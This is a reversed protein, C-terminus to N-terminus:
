DIGQFVFTAYKYGEQDYLRTFDRLRVVFDNYEKRDYAWGVEALAALRPLVKFQVNQMDPIYEAWINAQVGLINRQEEPRLQDYPDLRYSQRLPLYRLNCLPENRRPDATQSYDLYCNWKPAMIVKNGKRAAEMGYKQDRWVMINATKSIGGQLIEDWGIIERGQAHMWREIRHIFYSQLENEDKLGETRIREQCRPCTKWREKPCEDGGIHIYRSPFLAIVESLVNEFFEFTTDRGACYVDTSVGWRGWVEYPGGTCGLWPLSTLAALGHGPMEIEPIVEIYREAAYAVVERIQDQTYFGGYPTDDYPMPKTTDLLGVLTHKRMSGIQTLEPYRKIELRWGQDDTLHWQFRNIKHMALLDIFGKVDEVPFFHRCVDLMTGRYSMCPKDAIEVTPVKADNLVILQRLSQLGYFVGQPTGGRITIGKPTVTLRYEEKELSPDLSLVIARKEPDSTIEMVGGVNKEVQAAFLAAPNQLAEPAVIATRSTVSFAGKGERVSLPKPVIHTNAHTSLASMLVLALLSLVKKM